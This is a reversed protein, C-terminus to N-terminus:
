VVAKIHKARRNTNFVIIAIIKFIYPLRPRCLQYKIGFIFFRDSMFDSRKKLEIFRSAFDPTSVM